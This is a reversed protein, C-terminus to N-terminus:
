GFFCGFAWVIGFTKAFAKFFVRTKSLPAVSFQGRGSKEGSACSSGCTPIPEFLFWLAVFVVGIIFWFIFAGAVAGDIAVLAGFLFLILFVVILIKRKKTMGTNSRHIASGASSIDLLEHSQTHIEPSSVLPSTRPDTACQADRLITAGCEPCYNETWFKGCKTCTFMSM